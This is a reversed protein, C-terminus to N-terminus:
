ILKKGLHAVCNTGRRICRLSALAVIIEVNQNLGVEEERQPNVEEEEGQPNEEERHRLHIAQMIKNKTDIFSMNPNQSEMNTNQPEM